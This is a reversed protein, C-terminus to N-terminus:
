DSEDLDMDDDSDSESTTAAEHMPYLKVSMGIRQLDELLATHDRFEHGSGICVNYLRDSGEDHIKWRSLLMAIIGDQLRDFDEEGRPLSVTLSRLRPVLRIPLEALREYFVPTFVFSRTVSLTQLAPMYKLAYLLRGSSEDVGKLVLESLSGLSLRQFGRNFLVGCDCRPFIYEVKLKRLDPCHFCEFFPEDSGYLESDVMLYIDRLRPFTVRKIRENTPYDYPWAPDVYVELHELNPCKLLLHVTADDDFSMWRIDLSTLLSWNLQVFKQPNPWLKVVSSLELTHLGPADTFTISPDGHPLSQDPFDEASFWLCLSRLSPFSGAPMALIDGSADTPDLTLRLSTIIAAHPRLVDVLYPSLCSRPQQVGGGDVSFELRVPWSESCRSLWQRWVDVYNAQRHGLAPPLYPVYLYVWLEPSAFTVQRWLRCVHALCFPDYSLTIYSSFVERLLEPPLSQISVVDHQGPWQDAHNESSRLLMLPADTGEAHELQATDSVSLMERSNAQYYEM